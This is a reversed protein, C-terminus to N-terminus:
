YDCYPPFIYSALMSIDQYVIIIKAELWMRFPEIIHMWNKSIAFIPASDLSFNRMTLFAKFSNVSFSIFLSEIHSLLWGIYSGNGRRSVKLLLLSILGLDIRLLHQGGNLAFPISTSSVILFLYHPFFLGFLLTTLIGISSLM